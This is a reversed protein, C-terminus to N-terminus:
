PRSNRWENLAVRHANTCSICGCGHNTYTSNTGHPIRPDTVVLRGDILERRAWRRARTGAVRDRHNATCTSCQCQRRRYRSANHSVM